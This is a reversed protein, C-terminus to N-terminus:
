ASSSACRALSSSTAKGAIAAPRGLVGREPLQDALVVVVGGGQPSRPLQRAVQNRRRLGAGGPPGQERAEEQELALQHLM